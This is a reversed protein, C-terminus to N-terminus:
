ITIIWKSIVRGDVNLDELHDQEKLDGWWFGTVSRRDGMRAVHEAWWM